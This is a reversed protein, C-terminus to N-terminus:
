SAIKCILSNNSLFTVKKDVYDAWFRAQAKLYPDSPLLPPRTDKWTEDIYEVIISSECIPKGNHILVPIKKHVPNSEVLISSKNTLDQELKQYCIGKEDLAIRARASFVSVWSDLLVVGVSSDM